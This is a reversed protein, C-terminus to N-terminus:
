HVNAPPEFDTAWWVREEGRGPGNEVVRNEVMSNEMDQALADGIGRRMRLEHLKYSLWSLADPVALSFALLVLLGVVILSFFIIAKFFNTLFVSPDQESNM